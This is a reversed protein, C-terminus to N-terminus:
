PCAATPCRRSGTTRRIKGDACGAYIRESRDIAVTEPGDFAVAGQIQAAKLADNPAYSGELSPSAPPEWAIPDIRSSLVLALLLVSLVVAALM